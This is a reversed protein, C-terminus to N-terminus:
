YANNQNWYYMGNVLKCYKEKYEEETMPKICMETMGGDKYLINAGDQARIAIIHYPVQIGYPGTWYETSQNSGM